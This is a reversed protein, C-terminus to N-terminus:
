IQTSRAIKEAVKKRYAPDSEYRKDNMAETVQAVSEFVDSSTEVSDGNIMQQPQEANIGARSAIAQVAFKVQEISGTDLTSNFADKEAESLNQSAFEIVKSYNDKGGVLNHVTSVDNDAIAMQGAIYGDVLDKSLGMGELENYSKESLAGEQAYENYFKDMANPTTENEYTKDEPEQPQTPEPTSQKKELESYAKALDEASKFKEPLWEPRTDETTNTESVSVRNDDTVVTNNQTTNAQEELSPNNDGTSLEVKETSM